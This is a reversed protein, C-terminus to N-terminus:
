WKEQKEQKEQKGKEQLVKASLVAGPAIYLGFGVGFEPHFFGKTCIRRIDEVCDAALVVTEPETIGLGQATYRHELYTVLIRM